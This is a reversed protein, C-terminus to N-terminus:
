GSSAAHWSGASDLPLRSEQHPFHVEVWPPIGSDGPWVFTYTRVAGPESIRASMMVRGLPDRLLIPVAFAFDDWPADMVLMLEAVAGEVRFEIPRGRWQAVAGAGIQGKVDEQYNEWTPRSASCREALVAPDVGARLVATYFAVMGAIVLLAAGLAWRGWPNTSSTNMRPLKAIGAVGPLGFYGLNVRCGLLLSVYLL